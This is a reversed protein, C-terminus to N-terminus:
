SGPMCVSSSLVPPRSVRSSAQASRQSHVLVSLRRVWARATSSAMRAAAVLCGLSGIALEPLFRSVADHLARMDATLVSVLEGVSAADFFAVPRRLLGDFLSTM